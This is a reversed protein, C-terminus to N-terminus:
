WGGLHLTIGGFVVLGLPAVQGCPISKMPGWIKILTLSFCKVWLVGHKWPAISYRVGSSPFTRPCKWHRGLASPMIM